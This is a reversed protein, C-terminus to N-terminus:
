RLTRFFARVDQVLQEPEEMPAFHGGATMVTWRKLNYYQEAWRRPPILLERPFIAIGTPAEVIPTRDHSPQWLNHAAEYYYRVSTVFSETVWYIMLTTLLDDKSFKREVNGGCDSWNRRREVIWAALSVPSDHMGYALTQPDATQVALHSTITPRAEQTRQYFQKEDPGYDSETITRGAFFELPVALNVHVGILHQAYKHGLQSTVLAGWDGGQAAFKKYGLVEQMLKVWLDATRWYNVGPKTLPTSFGFGPLSPVVVDFADAPDGGFAAPDTLPRIVKHFDWFTWPWGHTLILPMPNPGKGPEHIFHIPVDDITTKYHTFANMAKEQARWDYGDRWYAVLEKLYAANAGYAWNDNAFDNPWRVRTLRERLDTLTAEPIAITFPTKEM